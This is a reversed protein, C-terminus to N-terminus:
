GAVKKAKWREEIGDLRAQRLGQKRGDERAEAMAEQRSSVINSIQNERQRIVRQLRDIEDQLKQQRRIGELVATQLKFREDEQRKRAKRARMAQWLALGLAAATCGIAAYYGIMWEM